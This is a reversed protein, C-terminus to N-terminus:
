DHNLLLSKGTMATPQPIKLYQLMTPAIDALIGGERLRGKYNDDVLILPVPFTTHATFPGGNDDLMKEANGHDATVLSVGGKKRVADTIKGVCDDVVEVAQRAADFVGTHGVMDCNAYNMILVDYIEEDIIKLTSETVEYASMEPKLDYTAVKPSHIMIRDEGPYPKEVGGNFFFTVHPYKETEATRLQRIGRASAIQVFLDDLRQQEFAVNAKLNIDYLTMCVEPIVPGGERDFKDFDLETFAFSLQRARDARFNFFIIGDKEKILHDFGEVSIPEMFEDTVEDGYYSRVAEIPDATKLGRGFVLLDYAKKTRQWRQDRDMAYYRGIVTGIRGVGIEKTHKDIDALYREGGSPSTDRGDLFAHIIVDNMKCNSCLKLLAYLHNLSSHVLGDSALGMIHLRGGIAKTSEIQNILVKNIFFDGDSISKDIRTVEQYVIRGAGINLHGVESNGMQGEPLGVALGSTGIQTNPYAAFLKDLNPKKAAYIANGRTEPNIGYGDMIILAIPRPIKNM